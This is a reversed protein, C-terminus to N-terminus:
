RLRLELQHEKSDIDHETASNGTATAAIHDLATTVANGTQPAHPDELTAPWLGQKSLRKSM